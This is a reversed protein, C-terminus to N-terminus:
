YGLYERGRNCWWRWEGENCLSVCWVLRGAIAIGTEGDGSELKMYMIIDKIQENPM